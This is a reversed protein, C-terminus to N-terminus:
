SNLETIIHRDHGSYDKIIKATLFGLDEQFHKLVQSGQKHGFEFGVFSKSKLKNKFHTSWSKIKELGDQDAYLAIHPEYKKVSEEVNVDGHAIYPPNSILVDISHSAADVSMADQNLFQVRESVGLLDANKKACTIASESIDVLTAQAQPYKKLLSLSICGSGSGLDVVHFPTEASFHNEIWQIAAEYLLETEPRPILVGTSIFFKHGAFHKEGIIYAVPEGGARRRVFDRCKSAESESLPQDFKLYLDIRNLSLASSILIEADLRATEIKKEKFFIITKDLVEKLKLSM